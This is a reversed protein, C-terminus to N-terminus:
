ITSVLSPLGSFLNRFDEFTTALQISAEAAQHCDVLCACVEDMRRSAVEAVRDLCAPWGTALPGLMAIADAHLKAEAVAAAVELPRQESAVAFPALRNSYRRFVQGIRSSGLKASM